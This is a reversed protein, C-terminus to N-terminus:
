TSSGAALGLEALLAGPDRGAVWAWGLDLELELEVADALLRDLLVSGDDATGLEADHTHFALGLGADRAARSARDLREVYSRTVESDLSPPLWGVVLLESGLSEAAGYLPAADAELEELGVHIGAVELGATDLWERVRAPEHGFLGALEVGDLGLRGSTSSRARSTASPRPACATCSSPAACPEAWPSRTPSRRRASAGAASEVAAGADAAELISLLVDLVHFALAGSARAADGRRIAQAMEVVGHGRRYPEDELGTAEWKGNLERGRRRVIGEYGNPDPLLLTGETGWLEVSHVDDWCDFSTVLTAIAGSEHELMAAVHTPVEVELLDGVRPGGTM